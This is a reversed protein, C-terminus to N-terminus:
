SRFVKLFLHPPHTVHLLRVQRKGEIGKNQLWLEASHVKIADEDGTARARILDRQAADRLTTSIRAGGMQSPAKWEPGSRAACAERVKETDVKNGHHLPTLEFILNLNFIIKLM